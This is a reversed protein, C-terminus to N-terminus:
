FTLVYSIALSGVQYRPAQELTPLVQTLGGPQMGDYRWDVSRFHQWTLAARLAHASSLRLLSAVQVQTSRTTASPLDAAPMYSAALTSTNAGAVGAFPNNVYNGGTVGVANRGDSFTASANVDVAGGWLRKLALSAGLTLTKDRVDAAWDLCPDIKNNANRAAVTSYCGGDVVTAGNVNAAASNATYTNGAIRSRQSEHSAFVNATLKDNVTYGADLHLSQRTGRQLGYVSRAFHDAGADAVAQLTWRESAQWDVTARLTHRDRDAQNYRRLGPLESIRNQNGYLTNALVNNAPFYFGQLSGAPAAPNLGAYPGWGNLGLALLANYATSGALTGTATSPSQGAMPVVALFANEDYDVRRRAVTASLRANLDSGVGGSWEGRLTNERSQPANACNVWSGSCFRDVQQSQWGVRLSQGAGTRYRADFDFEGTRRSYPTTANINFNSGLGSLTPFLYAFPSIGAAPNNNDYYGFTQVPTRNDHLTHKLGASLQLKSNAKHLLKLGASESVVLAQASRVPVWLATSDALLADDQTARASSAHAQLQTADSLVLNASLSLKRFHNSPASSVTATTQPSAWLNWSVGNIHNTFVSEELLAQVQLRGATYSLGLSYTTDQQDVPAPLISATDGGVARSHAPQAKLGQTKEQALSASWQWGHGIEQEWDAGYRSRQTYLGVQRFPPLDAAQLAAAAAAQAATPAAAVGAVVANSATVEPSLGRANPATASVRPVLPVLWNGPLSLTSTGVGSYPTQYSDSQNRRLEDVGLTLRYRGQIGVEAEASGSRSGLRVGKVRWRLARESDYADGGQLLLDAVASVGKKTWGSYEDAKAAYADATRMGLEIASSAHVLAMLQPDAPPVDAAPALSQAAALGAWAAHVALVIARLAWRQLTPRRPAALLFSPPNSSPRNM